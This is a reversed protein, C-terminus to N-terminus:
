ISTYKYRTEHITYEITFLITIGISIFIVNYLVM